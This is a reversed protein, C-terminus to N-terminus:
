VRSNRGRHSRKCFVFSLNEELLERLVDTFVDLIQDITTIAGVAKPQVSFADVVYGLFCHFLYTMETHKSKSLHQLSTKPLYLVYRGAAYVYCEDSESGWFKFFGTSLYYKSIQCVVGFFIYSIENRVICVTSM